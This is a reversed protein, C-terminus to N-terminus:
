CGDFLNERGSRASFDCLSNQGRYVKMYLLSPYLGPYQGLNVQRWTSKLGNLSKLRQIFRCNVNIDLWCIM